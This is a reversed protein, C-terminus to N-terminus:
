SGEAIALCGQTFHVRFPVVRPRRWTLASTSSLLNLQFLDQQFSKDVPLFRTELPCQIGLSLGNTPRTPEDASSKGLQPDPQPMRSLDSSHNHRSLSMEQYNSPPRKHHLARDPRREHERAVVGLGFHRPVLKM